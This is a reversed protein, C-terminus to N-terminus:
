ARIDAADGDDAFPQLVFGHRHIRGISLQNFLQVPRRLLDTGAIVDRRREEVQAGRRVDRIQFCQQLFVM